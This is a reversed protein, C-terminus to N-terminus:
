WLFLNFLDNYLHSPILTWQAKGTSKIRHKVQIPCPQKHNDEPAATMVTVKVGFVYVHTDIKYSNFSFYLSRTHNEHRVFIDIPIIESM